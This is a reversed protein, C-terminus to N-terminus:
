PRGVLEACHICLGDEWWEDEREVQGGCMLCSGVADTEWGCKECVHLHNRAPDLESGCHECIDM